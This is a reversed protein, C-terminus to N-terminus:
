ASSSFFVSVTVLRRRRMPPLSPPPFDAPMWQCTALSFLMSYTAARGSEVVSLDFVLGLTFAPFFAIWAAQLFHDRAFTSANMLEDSHHLKHFEWLFPVRHEIRHAWYFWADHLLLPVVILALIELVPGAVPIRGIEEFSFAIPQWPLLGRLGASWMGAAIGAPLVLFATSAFILMNLGYDRWGPAREVPWFREAIMYPVLLLPVILLNPLTQRSAEILTDTFASM